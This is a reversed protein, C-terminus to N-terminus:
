AALQFYCLQDVWLHGVWGTQTLTEGHNNLRGGGVCVCV